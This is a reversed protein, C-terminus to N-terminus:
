AQSNPSNLTVEMNQVVEQQSLGHRALLDHGESNM